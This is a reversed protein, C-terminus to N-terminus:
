RLPEKRASSGATLGVSSLRDTKVVPFDIETQAVHNFYNTFMNAGVNALIEVIEEDNFGARRVAELDEDGVRGHQGVIAKVFGLASAARADTAEGALGRAVEDRALGAAKGAASHASACYDCANRGAVTLAIQERLAPSLVGTGLATSFSLYGELAARSHGMTAFINPLMGIRARAGDFLEKTGPPAAEPKMAEIRPM